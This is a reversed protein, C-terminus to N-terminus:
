EVSEKRTNGKRGCEEVDEELVVVETEKREEEEVEVGDEKGVEEM